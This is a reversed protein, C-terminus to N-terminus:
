LATWLSLVHPPPASAPACGQTGTLLPIQAGDVVEAATLYRIAAQSAAQVRSSRQSATVQVFAGLASVIGRLWRPGAADGDAARDCSECRPGRHYFM